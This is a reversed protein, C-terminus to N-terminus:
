RTEPLLAAANRLGRRATASQRRASSRCNRGDLDRAHCSEDERGGPLGTEGPERGEGWRHPPAIGFGAIMVVARLIAAIKGKQGGIDAMAQDLLAFGGGHRERKMGCRRCVLEQLFDAPPCVPFAPEGMAWIDPVLIFQATVFQDSAHRALAEQAATVFSGDGAGGAYVAKVLPGLLKDRFAVEGIVRAHPKGRDPYEGQAQWPFQASVKEEAM